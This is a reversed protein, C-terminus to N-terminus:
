CNYYLGSSYSRIFFFFGYLRASVISVHFSIFFLKCCHLELIAVRLDEMTNVNKSFRHLSNELIPVTNYMNTIADSASRPGSFCRLQLEKHRYNVSKLRKSEARLMVIM